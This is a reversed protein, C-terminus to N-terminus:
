PSELRGALLQLHLIPGLLTWEQRVGQAESLCGIWPPPKTIPVVSSALAAADVTVFCSVEQLLPRIWIM